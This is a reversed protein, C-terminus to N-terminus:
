SRGPRRLSESWSPGRGNEELLTQVYRRAPAEPMGFRTTLAQVGAETREAFTTGVAHRLVEDPPALLATGIRDARSEVRWLDLGGDASDSRPLFDKYEDLRIGRFASSLREATTAPRQGDLVPLITDGFYHLADRRPLLHDALFHGIEHAITFRMENADDAGDVFLFAHGAHAM